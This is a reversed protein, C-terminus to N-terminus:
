RETETGCGQKRQGPHGHADVHGCGSVVGDHRGMRMEIKETPYRQEEEADVVPEMGSDIEAPNGDQLDAAQVKPVTSIVIPTM